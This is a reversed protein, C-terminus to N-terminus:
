EKGYEVLHQYYRLGSDVIEAGIASQNYILLINEKYVLGFSEAYVEKRSIWNVNLDPLFEQIVTATNNYSAFDDSYPRNVSTMTFEDQFQDNLSNGDWSVSDGIPFTLKVIPVNNEVMVAKGEDKRATWLSDFLWVDAQDDKKERLIKYSIGSELNIFSDVVSEKLQYSFLSDVDLAYKIGEVQYIRYDGVNLPFFSSGLSQPDTDKIESCQWFLGLFLLYLLSNTIRKQMNNLVQCSGAM